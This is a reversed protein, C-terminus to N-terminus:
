NEFCERKWIRRGESDVRYPVACDPHPRKPRKVPAGSAKASATTPASASTPPTASPETASATVSSTPEPPVALPATPAASPASRPAASARLARAAGIGGVIGVAIFLAFIIWRSPRAVSRGSERAPEPFESITTGVEAVGARVHVRVDNSDIARRGTGFPELARSLELISQFRAAPDKALCRAIVDSLEAPVAPRFTSVAPAARSLVSDVLDDISDAEFPARKTLMEFLVAGLAWIDARADVDRPSRFQEPSMYRPTGLLANLSTLAAEGTTTEVKCIGFDLIKVLPRGNATTTLFLNAPKLDRHVIGLAHAEALAECAQMVYDVATAIAIEPQGYVVTRLDAGELLETVLYARGDDLTGYDLVRTAHESRLRAAARGERQFRQALEQNAGARASLIKIAVDRDLALCRAAIVTGMGGVGVLHDVRYKGAILAGQEFGVAGESV